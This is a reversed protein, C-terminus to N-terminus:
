VRATDVTICTRATDSCSALLGKMDRAIASTGCPLNAALSVRDM